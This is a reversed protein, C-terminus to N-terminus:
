SFQVLTAKCSRANCNNNSMVVAFGNKSPCLPCLLPCTVARTFAAARTMSPLRFNSRPLVTLYVARHVASAQCEQTTVSCKELKCSQGGSDSRYRVVTSTPASCRPKWHKYESADAYQTRGVM